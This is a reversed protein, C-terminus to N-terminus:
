PKLQVIANSAHEVFWVNGDPGMTIGVPQAGADPTAAETITGSTTIRGIKSADFETFWLAGDPGNAIVVPTSAGTPIQYQTVAGSTTMRGISNTGPETFWLAGDPGFALGQPQTPVRHESFKGNGTVSGIRKAGYETFYLVSKKQDFALDYPESSKVPVHYETIVGTTGDVVCVNGAEFETIWVRSAGAGQVVGRTTSATSYYTIQGSPTVFGVNSSNASTFWANGYAAVVHSPEFGGTLQYETFTSTAVTISGIKSAAYGEETFWLMGSPDPAIRNPFSNATPITFKTFTYQTPALGAGSMILAGATTVVKSAPTVVSSSANCGGAVLLAAIALVTRSQSFSMGFEESLGRRPKAFEIM